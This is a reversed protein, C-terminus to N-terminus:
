FHLGSCIISGNVLPVQPRPQTIKSPCFYLSCFLSVGKLVPLHESHIIFGNNFGVKTPNSSNQLDQITNGVEAKPRSPDHREQDASNKIDQEAENLQQQNYDMLDKQKRAIPRFADSSRINGLQFQIGWNEFSRANRFFIQLIIFVITAMQPSFISTYKDKSM